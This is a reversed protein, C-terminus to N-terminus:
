CPIFNTTRGKGNKNKDNLNLNQKISTGLTGWIRSKGLM